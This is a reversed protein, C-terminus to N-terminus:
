SVRVWVESRTRSIEWFKEAVTAADITGNGRDAATSKVIGLITVEGVYVGEPKLKAHLVGVLKHQAAKAVALGM